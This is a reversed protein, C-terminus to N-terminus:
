AYRVFAVKLLQDAAGLEHPRGSITAGAESFDALDGIDAIRGGALLGPKVTWELAAGRDFVGGEAYVPVDSRAPTDGGFAPAAIPPM